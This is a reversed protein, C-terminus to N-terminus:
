EKYWRCQPVVRLPSDVPLNNSLTYLLMQNNLRSHFELWCTNDDMNIIPSTKSPRLCLFPPRRPFDCSFPSNTRKTEIEPNGLGCRATKPGGRSLTFQDLFFFIGLRGGETKHKRTFGRQYNRPLISM